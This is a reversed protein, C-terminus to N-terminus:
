GWIDKPKIGYSAFIKEIEIKEVVNPIVKGNQRFLFGSRTTIHLANMIRQRCEMYDCVKLNQMGRSFANKNISVTEEM